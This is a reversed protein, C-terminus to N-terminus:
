QANTLIATLYENSWGAKKRKSKISLRTAGKKLESQKIANMAIKSIVSFKEAANGARKMSTTKMLLWM